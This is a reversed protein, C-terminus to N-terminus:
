ETGEPHGAIWDAQLKQQEHPLYAGLYYGKSRV